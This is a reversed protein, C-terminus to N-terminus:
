SNSIQKKENVMQGVVCCLRDFDETWNALVGWESGSRTVIRCQRIQVGRATLTADDFRVIDDWKVSEWVEGRNRILGNPCVFVWNLPASYPLFLAAGGVVILGVGLLQRIGSSGDQPVTPDRADLVSWVLFAVGIMILISGLLASLRHFRMNPRFVDEPQGYLNLLADPISPPQRMDSTVPLGKTQRNLVTV